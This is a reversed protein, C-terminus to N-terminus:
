KFLFTLIDLLISVFSILLALRYMKKFMGLITDGAKLPSTFSDNIKGM